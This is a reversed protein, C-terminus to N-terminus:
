VMLQVFPAVSCMAAVLQMKVEDHRLVKRPSENQAHRTIRQLLNRRIAAGAPDESRVSTAYKGQGWKRAFGDREPFQRNSERVISQRAIVEPEVADM